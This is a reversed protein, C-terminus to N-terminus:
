KKRKDAANSEAGCVTCRWGSGGSSSTTSNFVRRGRGYMSDQDKHDCKCKKIATAM